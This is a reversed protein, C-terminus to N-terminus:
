NKRYSRTFEMEVRDAAECGSLHNHLRGTLTSLGTLTLVTIFIM